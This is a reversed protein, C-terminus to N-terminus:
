SELIAEILGEKFEYERRKFELANCAANLAHKLLFGRESDDDRVLTLCFHAIEEDRNTWDQMNCTNNWEDRLPRPGASVTVTNGRAALSLKDLLTQLEDAPNGAGGTREALKAPTESNKNQNKMFKCM